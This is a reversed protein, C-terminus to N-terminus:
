YSEDTDPDYYVAEPDDGFCECLMAAGGFGLRPNKHGLAKHGAIFAELIELSPYEIPGGSDDVPWSIHPIHHHMPGCGCAPDQCSATIMDALDQRGAAILAQKAARVGAQQDIEM